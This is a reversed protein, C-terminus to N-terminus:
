TSPMFFDYMPPEPWLSYAKAQMPLSSWNNFLLPFERRVPQFFACEEFRHLRSDDCNQCFSCTPSVDGFYKKADNTFQEGCSQFDVLAKQSPSLESHRRLNMRCISSVNGLYKRHRIKDCIYTLWSRELLFQIHRPSSMFIHIRAGRFDWIGEGEYSWPLNRLRDALIAVTGKYRPREVGFVICCTTLIIRLM